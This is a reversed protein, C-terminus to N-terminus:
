QKPPSQHAGFGVVEPPVAEATLEMAPITYDGDNQRRFPIPTVSFLSAMTTRLRAEAAAFGDDDVRDSQYVVVPPLVQYGPDFLLDDIPGNIGRPGYHSEWGGATVILMARKGELRGEGYRDGWRVDSHEGVGYAFGYSYVRDIWGKLIAPMSFWWMPFALILADAWLLDAQQSSVDETLSGTSFAEGSAAPVRLREGHPLTPFDARDVACKWGIEYLDTIRVEHEDAQLQSAAANRLSNTLSAQEPHASVILVKM